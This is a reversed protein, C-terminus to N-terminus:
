GDLNTTLFSSQVTRWDTVRNKLVADYSISPTVKLSTECSYMSNFLTLESFALVSRCNVYFTHIIMSTKLISSCSSFPFMSRPAIFSISLHTKEPYPPWPSHSYDCRRCVTMTLDPPLATVKKRTGLLYFLTKGTAINLQNIICQKNELQFTLSVLFTKKWFAKLWNCSTLLQAM